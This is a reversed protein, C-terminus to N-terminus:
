AAQKAKTISSNVLARDVTATVTEGVVLRTATVVVDALQNTADDLLQDRDSVAKKTADALILAAKAEAETSAHKVIAAAKAEADAVMQKARQAAVKRDDTVKSELLKAEQRELEARELSLKITAERQELLAVLPKIMVYWLIVALVTFNVISVVLVHWEVGFDTLIEAM